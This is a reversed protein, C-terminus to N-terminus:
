EGRRSSAGRFAHGFLGADLRLGDVAQQFDIGLAAAKAAAGVVREVAIQQHDVFGAHDIDRQHKREDLRDRGPRRKQQDAVHILKGRDARALNEVVDDIGARYRDGPQGLHKALGGRTPDDDVRVPDIATFHRFPWLAALLRVEPKDFGVIGLVSRRLDHFNDAVPNWTPEAEVRDPVNLHEARHLTAREARPREVGIQLFGEIGIRGRLDLFEPRNERGAVLDHLGLIIIVAIDEIAVKSGHQADVLNFAEEDGAEVPALDFIRQAFEVSHNGGIRRRDVLRLARFIGGDDDRERGLMVRHQRAIEDVGGDRPAFTEHDDDTLAPRHRDRHAAAASALPPRLEPLPQARISNKILIGTQDLAAVQHEFGQWDLARKGRSRCEQSGRRCSGRSPFEPRSTQSPHHMLATKEM